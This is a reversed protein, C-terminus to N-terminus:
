STSCSKRFKADGVIPDLCQPAPRRFRKADVDPLMRNEELCEDVPWILECWCAVLCEKERSWWDRGVVDEVGVMLYSIVSDKQDSRRYVAREVFNRPRRASEAVVEHAGKPTERNSKCDNM